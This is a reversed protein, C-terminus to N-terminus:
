VINYKRLIIFIITVNNNEVFLPGVVSSQLIIKVILYPCIGLKINRFHYCQRRINIYNFIVTYKGIWSSQSDDLSFGEKANHLASIVITPVVIMMGLDLMLLSQAVM